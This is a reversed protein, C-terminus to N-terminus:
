KEFYGKVIPKGHEMMRKGHAYVQEIRCEGDLILLDADSGAQLAGKNPHMHLAKAVNVTVPKLADTLSMGEDLHMCRVTEFLSSADAAQIGIVENHENWVPMSGNSDSSMTVSGEPAGAAIFEKIAKATSAPGVCSTFDAYGGMKALKLMDPLNNQAHTPRFTSIPIDTEELIEFVTKLGDKGRGMHLHLVGPKKGILGAVRAAAALKTLEQKTIGAYRHDSICIKVGIIEQVLAIDRSVSGSFTPSPYDYSGTYCLATLGEENLAKVKALLSEVNRSVSDTGLVGVVTTIGGRVCDSLGIETVKSTFGSEGGGGTVHVHQDILGPVVKKGSADIVETNPYSFDIKPAIEIIKDNCLLLDAQGIHEPTYVDGNKILKFM